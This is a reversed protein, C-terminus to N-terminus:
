VHARGIESTASAGDGAYFGADFGTVSTIGNINGIRTRVTRNSPNGTWTVVQSYPSNAGYLGDIANIEHFGNGSTGFDLALSDVPVKGGTANGGNSGSLRTFTWTQYSRGKSDIGAGTTPNTVTGYAWSVDLGGNARSFTRVGVVDNAQFVQMNPASPLDAVALVASAGTAPITFSDALMAVSKSIIQGGALAQELDAIFSKAHLEDAFLYRFDGEGSNTIRMGTTQSSFNHSQLSKGSALSVFGGPNLTINTSGGSTISLAGSVGSSYGNLSSGYFGGTVSTIDSQAQLTTSFNGYGTVALSAQGSLLGGVTGSGTAMLTGNILTNNATANQIMNGIPIEAHPLVRHCM